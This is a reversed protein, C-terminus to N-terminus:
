KAGNYLRKRGRGKKLNSYKRYECGIGEWNEASLLVSAENYTLSPFNDFPLRSLTLCTEEPNTTPSLLKMTPASGPGVPFRKSLDIYNPFQYATDILVETWHFRLNFGFVPLINDLAESVGLRKFSCIIEACKKGVKPLYKCFFEERTPWDSKMILSVPFIYASGYKPRPLSKLKKYVVSNKTTDYSLFGIKNVTDSNCILRSFLVNLLWVEFNSEFGKLASHIKITQSDLERYINCFRYNQLIDDNTLPPKAGKTKREWIKQREVAFQQVKILLQRNVTVKVETENDTHYQWHKYLAKLETPVEM